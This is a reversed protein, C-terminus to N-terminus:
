DRSKRLFALTERRDLTISLQRRVAPFLALAAKCLLNVRSIRHLEYQKMFKLIFLLERYCFNLINVDPFKIPSQTGSHFATAFRTKLLLYHAVITNYKM